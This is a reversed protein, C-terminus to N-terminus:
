TRRTLTYGAEPSWHEIHLADREPAVTLLVLDRVDITFLLFDGLDSLDAGTADEFVTGFRGLTAADDVRHAIGSLKADGETVDKDVTAAHLACRGDRELDAAKRSGPMMGLWVEGEGFLPEVGSIRPSGDRRLTAVLGLGTAEFRARSRAALDPVEAAVESWTAM